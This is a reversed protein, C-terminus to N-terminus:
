EAPILEMAWEIPVAFNLGESDRYGFTTLGVLKGQADFLGGGSSGPSIATDTQILPASGVLANGEADEGRLQSVLGGSISFDLGKPAGVAYVQEAIKMEAAKRTEAPIAWLGPVELLCVDRQRDGAVVRAPHSQSKDARRNEGKFVAIPSTAADTVHCNTAVLNPKLVVGSGQSNGAEVVVVSRWISEFVGGAETEATPFVASPKEQPIERAHQAAKQLEDLFEFNNGSTAIDLATEGAEGLAHLNAGHKVLAVAITLNRNLIATHLPADGWNNRAEPNAGNELLVSVAQAANVQVAIHLPTYMGLSFFNRGILNWSFGGWHSYQISWAKSRAELNAGRKALEAVADSANARAAWHLPTQLGNTLSELNAGRQALFVVVDRANGRAAWHLSTGKQAQEAGSPITLEACTSVLARAWKISNACLHSYNEERVFFLKSSFGSPRVVDVLDTISAPLLIGMDERQFEDSAYGWPGARSEIDAGEDLFKRVAALDGKEASEYLSKPGVPGNQQVKGTDAGVVKKDAILPAARRRNIEERASSLEASSLKGVSDDRYKAAPEFGEAAAIHFQIYAERHDISVGLGNSYLLGLNFHAKAYGQGAARRYWKAAEEYDQAVGEGHDYAYGLVNQARAHGQEAARRHWKVAEAYDQPVDCGFYYAEGLQYQVEADNEQTAAFVAKDISVLGPCEKPVSGMGGCGALVTVVCVAALWHSFFGRLAFIATLLAATFVLIAPIAPIALIAISM